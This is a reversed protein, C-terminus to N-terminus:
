RDPPLPVTLPYAHALWAFLGAGLVLARATIEPSWTFGASATPPHRMLVAVM